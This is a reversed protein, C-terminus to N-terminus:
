APRSTASCRGSASRTSRRCRGRVSVAACRGPRARHRGRTPPHRGFLRARLSAPREIRAQRGQTSAAGHGFDGQDGVGAAGDARLELWRRRASPWMGATKYPWPMSESLMWTSRRSSRRASVPGAPSCRARSGRAHVADIWGVITFDSWRSGIWCVTDCTSKRFTLRSSTISIETGKWSSPSALATSATPPRTSGATSVMVTRVVGPLTGPANM